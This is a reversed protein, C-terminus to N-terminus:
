VYFRVKFEQIFDAYNNVQDYASLDGTWVFDSLVGEIKISDLLDAVIPNDSNDVLGVINDRLTFNSTINGSPIAPLGPVDPIVPLGPFDPIVPIGPISPIGPIATSIGETTVEPLLTTHLLSTTAPKNQLTANSTTIIPDTYNNTNTTEPVQTVPITNKSTPMITTTVAETTCTSEDFGIFVHVHM